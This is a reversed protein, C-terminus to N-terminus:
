VTTKSYNEANIISIYNGNFKERKERKRYDVILNVHDDGFTAFMEARENLSSRFFTSVSSRRVLFFVISDRLVM